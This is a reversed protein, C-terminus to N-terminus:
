DVRLKQPSKSSLIDLSRIYLDEDNRSAFLVTGKPRECVDSAVSPCGFYLAEAISIGYSDFATPRIMLDCKRFLPWLEKQGTLFHYNDQIGLEVINRNIKEFYDTDGIEALAFLMGINPYTDRLRSVLEISMDIGYLDVGKHFVIISANAVILPKHSELFILTKEDYTEWIASEEKLPPPLFPPEIKTEAPLEFGLQKYSFKMYDAVLICEDVKRLFYRFLTKDMRGLTEFYRCSHNHLIIRSRFPRLLLLVALKNAFRNLHYTANHPWFFLKLYSLLKGVIQKKEFDIHEVEFGQRKLITSYRSIFVSVGGLPPPHPGIIFYKM